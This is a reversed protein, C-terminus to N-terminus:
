NVTTFKVDINGSSTSLDIKNKGNSSSPVDVKGSLSDATITYNAPDGLISGQINGSLTTISINNAALKIFDVNGSATKLPLTM